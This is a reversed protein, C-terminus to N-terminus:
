SRRLTGTERRSVGMDTKGAFMFYMSEDPYNYLGSCVLLVDPDAAQVRTRASM